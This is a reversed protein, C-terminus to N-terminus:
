AQHKGPLRATMAAIIEASRQAGGLDLPLGSGERPRNLAAATAAALTAASLEAEAVVVLEGLAEFREARLSQETEEGGAFPVVVAPVRAQLVELLTNYGAQSISLRCAALLARFDRRARELTVGRPAAKRLDQLRAEPFNAGLLVRWPLETCAGLARAGLAAEVLAEAVAGGGTSVLVGGASRAAPPPLAEAVYGTYQLKDGLRGAAPFTTEFPLVEPDGHVLVADFYAEIQGLMWDSREPSPIKSLLDRVSCLIVPRPRMAKAAELLPILEFRMQRRGFPYLEIILAQPAEQEFLALLQACRRAQWAEDLAEGEAGVLASFAADAARTPPLQHFRAGGPDLGPVPMGGSVVAVDLEARRMARALILARQLHGIGLLHQVYLLVRPRM